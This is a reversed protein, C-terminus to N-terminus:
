SDLKRQGFKVRPVEDCVDTSFPLEIGWARDILNAITHLQHHKALVIFLKSAPATKRYLIKMAVPM